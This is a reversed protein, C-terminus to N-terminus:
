KSRPIAFETFWVHDVNFFLYTCYITNTLITTGVKNKHERIRRILFFTFIVGFVFVVNRESVLFMIKAINARCFKLLNTEPPIYRCGCTIITGLIYLKFKQMSMLVPPRSSFLLRWKVPWSILQGGVLWNVLWTFIVIWWDAGLEWSYASSWARCRPFWLFTHDYTYEM